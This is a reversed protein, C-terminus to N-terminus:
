SCTASRNCAHARRSNPQRPCLTDRRHADGSGATGRGAGHGTQVTAAAGDSFWRVASNDLEMGRRIATTSVSKRSREPGRPRHLEGQRYRFEGPCCRNGRRRATGPRGGRARGGRAPGAGGMRGVAANGGVTQLDGHQGRATSACRSQAHPRVPRELAHDRRRRRAAPIPHVAEETPPPLRATTAPTTAPRPPRPPDLLQRLRLRARNGRRAGRRTAKRDGHPHDRRYRRAPSLHDGRRRASYRSTRRCRPRGLRTPHRPGRSPM